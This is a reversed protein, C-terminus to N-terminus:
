HDKRGTQRSRAHSYKRRHLNSGSEAYPNVKRIAAPGIVMMKATDDIVSSGNVVTSIATISSISVSSSTGTLRANRSGKSAAITPQCDHHAIWANGAFSSMM